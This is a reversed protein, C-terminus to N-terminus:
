KLKHYHRCRFKQMQLAKENFSFTLQPNYQAEPFDLDSGPLTIKFVQERFKQAISTDQPHEHLCIHIELGSILDTGSIFTAQINPNKIEVFLPTVWKNRLETGEEFKAVPDIDLLLIESSHDIFVDGFSMNHALIREQGRQFSLTKNNFRTMEVRLIERREDLALVQQENAFLINIINITLIIKNYHMGGLFSIQNPHMLANRLDKLHDLFIKLKKYEGRQHIFTILQALTHNQKRGKKDIFEVAINLEKCKLKVALELTRLLKNMAEDYMPYHYWAHAMLFEITEFEKLIPEPVKKHFFGKVLYRELYSDYDKCGFIPWRNDPTHYLM